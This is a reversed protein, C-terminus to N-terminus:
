DKRCVAVYSELEHRLTQELYKKIFLINYQKLYEFDRALAVFGLETLFSTVDAVLWQNQWFKIEEVEIFIAETKKITETAGSLVAAQAGEVDIWLAVSGDGTHLSDLRSSKVLCEEYTVAAANRKLISNNGVTYPMKIDGNSRMLQFRVEGDQDSIALQKYDIGLSAYDHIQTFKDYNHPNAEFAICQKALGEKKAEISFLASNAGIEYLWDVPSKKLLSKFL